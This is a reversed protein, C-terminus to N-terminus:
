MRLGNSRNFDLLILIVDEIEVLIIPEKRNVKCLISDM